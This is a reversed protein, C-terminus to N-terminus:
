SQELRSRLKENLFRARADPKADHIGSVTLHLHTGKPIRRAALVPDLTQYRGRELVGLVGSPHRVWGMAEYGVIRGDRQIMQSAACPWKLFTAQDSAPFCRIRGRAKGTFQVHHYALTVILRFRSREERHVYAVKQVNIGGVLYGGPVISRFRTGEPLTGLRGSEPSLIRSGIDLGDHRPRLSTAALDDRGFWLRDGRDLPFPNRAADLFISLLADHERPFAEPAAAVWGGEVWRELGKRDRDAVWPPVGRTESERSRLLLSM